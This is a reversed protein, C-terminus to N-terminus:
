ATTSTAPSSPRGASASALAPDATDMRTWQDPQSVLIAGLEFPDILANLVMVRPDAAPLNLQRTAAQVHGRLPEEAAGWYCPMAAGLLLYAALEAEGGGRARSASRVLRLVNGADGPVGDDFAGELGALRAYDPPELPLVRAAEMLQHVSEARGLEFALEAGRLLRHGKRGADVSLTLPCSRRGSWGNRPWTLHGTRPLAIRAPM